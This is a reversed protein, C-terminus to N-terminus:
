SRRTLRRRLLIVVTATLFIVISAPEPVNIAGPSANPTDHDPPPIQLTNLPATTLPGPGLSPQVFPLDDPSAQIVPAAEPSIQTSPGPYVATAIAPIVLAAGISVPVAGALAAM